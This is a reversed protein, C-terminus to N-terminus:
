ASVNEQNKNRQWETNWKEELLPNFDLITFSVYISTFNKLKSPSLYLSICLSISISLPTLSPPLSSLSPLLPSVTPSPSLPLSIYIMYQMIWHALSRWPRHIGRNSNFKVPFSYLSNNESLKTLHLFLSLLM